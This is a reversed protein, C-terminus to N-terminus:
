PATSWTSMADVLSVIPRPVSRIFETSTEFHAAEASMVALWFSRVMIQCDWTSPVEVARPVTLVNERSTPGDGIRQVTPRGHTDMSPVETPVKSVALPAGLVMATERTPKRLHPPFHGSGPLVTETSDDKRRAM